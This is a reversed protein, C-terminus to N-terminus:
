NVTERLRGFTDVSTLLVFDIKIMAGSVLTAIQLAAHFTSILLM